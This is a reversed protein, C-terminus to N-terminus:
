RKMLVIGVNPVNKMRAKGKEQLEIFAMKALSRKGCMKAAESLAIYVEYKSKDASVDKLRDMVKKKCEEIREAKLNPKFLEAYIRMGSIVKDYMKNYYIRNLEVDVLYVYVYKNLFNKQYEESNMFEIAREDWGTPSEIGLIHFYNGKEASEIARSLIAQLEGLTAKKTDIGVKAYETLHNYSMAEIIGILKGTFFSKIVYRSRVNQPLEAWKKENLRMVKKKSSHSSHNEGWDKIVKKRGNELPNPLELPLDYMKREFRGTFAMEYQKAEEALVPRSPVDGRLSANIEEIKEQLARNDAELGSKLSRYKELAGSYKEIQERLLQMEGDLEAMAEEKASEKIKELRREQEELEKKKKELIDFKSDWRSYIDKLQEEMRDREQKMVSVQMELAKKEGKEEMLQRELEAMREELMDKEKEIEATREEITPAENEVDRELKEAENRLNRSELLAEEYERFIEVLATPNSKLWLIIGDVVKSFRNKYKEELATIISNSVDTNNKWTSRLSSLYSYQKEVAEKILSYLEGKKRIQDAIEEATLNYRDFESFREFDRMAAVTGESFTRRIDKIIYEYEKADEPYEQSFKAYRNLIALVLKLKAGDFIGRRREKTQQSCPMDCSMCLDEFDDRDRSVKNYIELLKEFDRRELDRVQYNGWINKAESRIKKCKELNESM